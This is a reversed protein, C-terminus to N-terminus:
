KLFFNSFHKFIAVNQTNILLLVYSFNLLILIYSDAVQRDEFKSENVLRSVSASNFQSASLVYFSMLLVKM